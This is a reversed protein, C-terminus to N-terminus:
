QCSRRFRDGSEGGLREAFAERTALVLLGVRMKQEGDIMRFRQDGGGVDIGIRLLSEQAQQERQARARM